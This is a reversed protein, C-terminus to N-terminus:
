KPSQCRKKPQLPFPFLNSGNKGNWQNGVGPQRTPIVEPVLVAPDRRIHTHAACLLDVFGAECQPRMVKLVFHRGDKATARFNLDYEGALPELAAEIGWAEHLTRTWHAARDTM